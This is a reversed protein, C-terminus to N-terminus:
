IINGLTMMWQAILEAEVLKKYEDIGSVFIM